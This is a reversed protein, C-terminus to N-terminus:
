SCVWYVRRNLIFLHNPSLSLGGISTWVRRNRPSRINDSSGFICSTVAIKCTSMYQTDEETLDFGSSRSSGYEKIFGCHIPQDSAIFSNNRQLLTQHGAFRPEWGAIGQPDEYQIYNLSFNEFKINPKPEQVGATTDLFDIDCLYGPKFSVLNIIM